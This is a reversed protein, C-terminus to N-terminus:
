STKVVRRVQALFDSDQDILPEFLDGFRHWRSPHEIM